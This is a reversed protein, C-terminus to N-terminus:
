NKAIKVTKWLRKITYKKIIELLEDVTFQHISRGRDMLKNFEDLGYKTILRASYEHLNGHKWLNCGVCQCHVNIEDFFTANHGNRPIFHGANMSGIDGQRGCTFCKGIDRMRIWLSFVQWAKRKLKPIEAKSYKKLQTKKM